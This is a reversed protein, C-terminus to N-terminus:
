IKKFFDEKVTIEEVTKEEVDIGVRLDKLMEAMTNGDILDIPPAGDRISEKIADRTFNGTTIFIGKDARGVMAGRFDRIEKSSVSGKYRKCQFYVHFSMIGNIKAIGKGDLGEDGSKGTVEVQEFGAERLLRKTLREFADPEIEKLINLLQVKWDYEDEERLFDDESTSTETEKKAAKKKEAEIVKKVVEKPDEVQLLENNDSIVSWVGKRSNEIFGCKKLYTKTWALRYEVESKNSKDPNHPVNQIEEPLNLIEIVKGDIESITGSGGLEHLAKLLPNMMFDFTPMKM